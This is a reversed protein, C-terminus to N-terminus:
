IKINITIFYNKLNSVKFEDRLDHVFDESIRKKKIEGRNAKSNKNYEMESETNSHYKRRTKALLAM